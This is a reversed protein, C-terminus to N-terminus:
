KSTRWVKRLSIWAGVSNEYLQGQDLAVATRLESGGLWQLPWTIGAVGSFQPRPRVFPYRYTGYNQSVSLKTYWQIQQGMSGAMGLHGLQVRNNTIAWIRKSPQENQREPRLDDRRSLFPTGIVYRSQQWGDIYQFNNFYDDQGDYRSGTHILSGSQSMTNFYEILIHHLQLGGLKTPQRVLRFGYLGDPLNIFAVGSKDEFPHQYYGMGQWKGMNIEIGFDISGLHNGVRNVKDFETLSESDSGSTEQASLVYLYDKFSGPFRGNKVVGGSLHDSRGGWQANHLVGATLRVAANPRGLRVYLAKQHLFAGQISDSNAIWGHAFFAHFSVFGKTFGLPTFGNTGLQIKTIPLANGSWSYFGSTLTSDGLGIIEKKRGGWLSFHGLDLSVYAEPLLVASTKAANGVVQLGYSIRRNPYVKSLSFQEQIGLRLSGAPSSRPVLAFQNAQLWFPTRNSTAVLGGIEIDLARFHGTPILLSDVQATAFTCTLSLLISSLLKKM